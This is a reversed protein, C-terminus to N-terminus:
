QGIALVPAGPYAARAGPGAHRVIGPLLALAREGSEIAQPVLNTLNCEWAHAEFLRAREETPLAHAHHLAAEFHAVAESHAGLQGAQQGARPAFEIVAAANGALQAHHVLQSLDAGHQVLADLIRQHLERARKPSVTSEVALRALEHAFAIHEADVRLVGHSVAEEVPASVDGLLANALWLETRGPSLSVVEALQRVAPSCQMLRAIVADRVTEPLVDSPAELLERVFFANGGTLAYIREPDRHAPRALQTVAALSLAPIRMRLTHHGTLEGLVRRLPHASALGDDRYTAMLLCRTRQIRRGVYRVFDLTAEDAWHLDELVVITVHNPRSLEDVLRAFLQTRSHEVREPPHESDIGSVALAAAIEHVPGLARPTQLADCAGWVVRVGRRAKSAFAEVLASKGAGAEGAVFVVKGRGAETEQLQRALEDLQSQRELLELANRNPTSPAPAATM